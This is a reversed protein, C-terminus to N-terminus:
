DDYHTRFPLGLERCIPIEHHSMNQHEIELQYFKKKKGYDSADKGGADSKIKFDIYKKTMEEYWEPNQVNQMAHGLEHYLSVGLPLDGKNSSTQGEWKSSPKLNGTPNVVAIGGTYKKLADAGALCHSPVHTSDAQDTFLIGVLKSAGALYSDIAKATSSTAVEQKCSDLLQRSNQLPTYCGEIQNTILEVTM